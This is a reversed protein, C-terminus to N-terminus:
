AGGLLAVLVMVLGTVDVEAGGPGSLFGSGRRGLAPMDGKASSRLFVASVGIRNGWDLGAFPWDVAGATEAEVLKKERLEAGTHLSIPATRFSPHIPSLNGFTRTADVVIMFSIDQM